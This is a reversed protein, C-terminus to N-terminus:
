CFEVSSEVSSHAQAVTRSSVQSASVLRLCVSFNECQHYSDDFVTSHEAYTRERISWLITDQHSGAIDLLLSSREFAAAEVAVLALM